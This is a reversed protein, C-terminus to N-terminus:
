NTAWVEKFELGKLGAGTWLEVVEESLFTPSVRLNPIKFIPIREIVARRFVYRNIKMIRGSSFRLLSSAEEDLADVVSTPNFAVLRVESCDLPLLEGHEVLTEGIAEVASQRLILAHAGLWPSDCPLLRRGEDEHVLRVPVPTWSAGRCEGNILVNITEFGDDGIPQCLEFGDLGLPVFVRM